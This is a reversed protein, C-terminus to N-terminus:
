RAPRVAARARAAAWRGERSRDDNWDRITEWFWVPNGSITKDPEPLIKLWRWHDVTARKVGLREAIEAPGVLDLSSGEDTRRPSRSGLHAGTAGEASM